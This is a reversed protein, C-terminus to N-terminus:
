RQEVPRELHRQRSSVGGEKLATWIPKWRGVGHKVQESVVELGTQHRKGAPAQCEHPLDDWEPHAVPLGELDVKRFVMLDLTAAFGV